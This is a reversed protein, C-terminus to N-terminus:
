AAASGFEDPESVPEATLGDKVGRRARRAADDVKALLMVTPKLEDPASDFPLHQKMRGGALRPLMSRPVLTWNSPDTNAKDGLCKLAHGKPIPGHVDEWRILHVARWRKQLLLDDNVKRELYGNKSLRETGVPKYLRVAVGRREGKRFHSARANPHRGGKGEECRKGKNLPTQGKEFCGTRGTRWGNRKRLSHLNKASVDTRAFALVFQAHYDAIPLLRNEELWAMEAASYAIWKGKPM